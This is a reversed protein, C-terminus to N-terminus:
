PSRKRWSSSERSEGGSAHERNGLDGFGKAATRKKFLSRKLHIAAIADAQDPRIARSFRRQERENQPFSRRILPLNREFFGGSDSKERLFM